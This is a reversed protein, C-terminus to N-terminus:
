ATALRLILMEVAGSVLSTANGARKALPRVGCGAADYMVDFCAGAWICWLDIALDDELHDVLTVGPSDDRVLLDCPM